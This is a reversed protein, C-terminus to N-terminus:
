SNNKLEYELAGGAVHLAVHKYLNLIEQGWDDNHIIIASKESHFGKSYNKKYVTDSM